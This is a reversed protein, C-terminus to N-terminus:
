FYVFIYLQSLAAIFSRYLQSLASIFSLYLQSLASIFSLYRLFLASIFSRYLLKPPVGTVGCCPTKKRREWGTALSFDVVARSSARCYRRLRADAPALRLARARDATGGDTTRQTRVASLLCCVACPHASSLLLSARKGRQIECSVRVLAFAIFRKDPKPLCFCGIYGSATRPSVPRNAGAKKRQRQTQTSTPGHNSPSIAGDVGCALFEVEFTETKRGNVLLRYLSETGGIEEDSPM